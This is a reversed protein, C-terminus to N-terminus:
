KKKLSLLNRLKSYTASDIQAVTAANAGVAPAVAAVEASLRSSSSVGAWRRSCQRIYISLVHVNAQLASAFNTQSTIDVTDKVYASM